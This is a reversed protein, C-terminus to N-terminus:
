AQKSVYARRFLGRYAEPVDGRLRIPPRGVFNEADTFWKRAYVLYLIPRCIQAANKTGHHAIRYDVLWCAGCDAEITTGGIMRQWLSPDPHDTKPYICTSGGPGGVDVLPVAMTVAYTPLTMCGLEDEPFLLSHDLHLHQDKAGPYSVVAVFSDVVFEEGLLSHLLPFVMPNAYLRRDLFPAELEVAFMYREHGVQSGIEQLREQSLDGYKSFFATRLSSIFRQSLANEFLVWGNNRFCDEARDVTDILPARKKVEAKSFRIM